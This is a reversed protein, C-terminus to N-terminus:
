PVDLRLPPATLHIPQAPVFGFAAEEDYGLILEYSGPGPLTAIASGYLVDDSARALAKTLASCDSGIVLISTRTFDGKDWRVGPPLPAPPDIPRNLLRRLRADDPLAARPLWCGVLRVVVSAGPKMRAGHEKLYGPVYPPSPAGYRPDFLRHIGIPTAGARALQGRWSPLGYLPAFPADKTCVVVPRPDDNIMTMEITLDQARGAVLASSLLTAVLRM